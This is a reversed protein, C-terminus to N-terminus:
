LKCWASRMENWAFSFSAYIYEKLVCANNCTLQFNFMQLTLLTSQVERIKLLM